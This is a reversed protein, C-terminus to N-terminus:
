DLTTKVLMTKVVHLQFYNFIHLFLNGVASFVVYPYVSAKKRESVTSVPNYAVSTFHTRKTELFTGTNIKLLKSFL